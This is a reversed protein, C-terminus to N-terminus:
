KENKPKEKKSSKLKKVIKDYNMFTFISYPQNELVDILREIEDGTLKVNRIKKDPYIIAMRFFKGRM